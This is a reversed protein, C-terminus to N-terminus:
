RLYKCKGKLKTELMIKKTKNICEDITAKMENIIDRLKQAEVTNYFKNQLHKVKDLKPKVYSYINPWYSKDVGLALFFIAKAPPSSGYNMAPKEFEKEFAKFEQDEEIMKLLNYIAQLYEAFKTRILMEINQLDQYLDPYHNELDEYLLIDVRFDNKFHFDDWWRIESRLSDEIGRLSWEPGSEGFMFNGKLECLQELVPELCKRKIGEFHKERLRKREKWWEILMGSLYAILGSLITGLVTLIINEWSV